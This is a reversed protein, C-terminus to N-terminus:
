DTSGNGAVSQWIFSSKNTGLLRFNANTQFHDIAPLWDPAFETKVGKRGVNKACIVVYDSEPLSDPLEDVSLWQFKCEHYASLVSSSPNIYVMSQRNLEPLLIQRPYNVDAYTERSVGRSAFAFSVALVGISILALGKRVKDSVVLLVVAVTPFLFPLMFRHSSIDEFSNICRLSIISGIYALALTAIHRQSTNRLKWFCYCILAILLSVLILGGLMWVAGGEVGVFRVIGPSSLGGVISWGLHAAHLPFSLLGDGPPRDGGSISGATRYNTWLAFLTLIVTVVGWGVFWRLVKAERLKKFEVLFCFWILFHTFIGAYRITFSLYGLLFTFVIFRRDPWRGIMVAMPLLICSFTLESLNAFLNVAVGPVASLAALILITSWDLKRQGQIKMIWIFLIGLSVVAITRLAFYAPLGFHTLISAIFAMGIPWSTGFRDPIIIDQIHKTYYGFHFSDLGLPREGRYWIMAVVFSLALPLLVMMLWRLLCGDDVQPSM